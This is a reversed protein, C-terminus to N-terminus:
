SLVALLVVMFVVVFVMLLCTMRRAAKRQYNNATVLEESAGRTNNAVSIVNSEINNIMSGQDSVITALDRFIENLETIGQEIEEIEGEREQILQEQFEIESDTVMEQQLLQTQELELVQGQQLGLTDSSSLAPANIDDLTAKARQVFTRQREVSRTQAAQFARLARQFDTSIKDRELKHQRDDPELNCKALSKLEATSDKVLERTVDTLNHLKNRLDTNDKVTGLLDVLKVIASVNANIKHIQLSLQRAISKFELDLEPSIGLDRALPAREGLGRELDAFSM